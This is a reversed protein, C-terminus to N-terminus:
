AEGTKTKPLQLQILLLTPTTTEQHHRNSRAEDNPSGVWGPRLGIGATM